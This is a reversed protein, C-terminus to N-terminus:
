YPSDMNFSALTEGLEATSWVTQLNHEHTWTQVACKRCIKISQFMNFTPNFIIKTSKSNKLLLIMSFFKFIIIRSFLVFCTKHLQYWGKVYTFSMKHFILSEVPRTFSRPSFLLFFICNIHFFVCLFSFSM